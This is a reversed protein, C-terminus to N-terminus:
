VRYGRRKLVKLMQVAPERLSEELAELRAVVEDYDRAQVFTVVRAPNAIDFCNPWLMAANQSNAAYRKAPKM